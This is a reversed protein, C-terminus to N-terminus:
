EVKQEQADVYEAMVALQNLLGLGLTLAGGRPDVMPDTLVMAGAGSGAIVAGDSWAQRLAEFTASKKLVAKLHLPSGGALYIFRAQRVVDAMGPDESSARDLVMLGEVRAGLVAFWEAAQLVVREPNQYAAATPLVLVDTGGSAALLDADFICGPTWEAGGVLALVGNKDM